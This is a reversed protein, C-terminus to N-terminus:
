EAVAGSVSNENQKSYGQKCAELKKVETKIKEGDEIVKEKCNIIRALKGIGSIMMVKKIPPPPNLIVVKGERESMIKYRGMVLGIGSSDMFTVGSFDLELFRPERRKIESDIRFRIEKATHHDLEGQIYVTLTEKYFVFGASM